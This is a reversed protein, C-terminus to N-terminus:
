KPIKSLMRIRSPHRAFGPIDGSMMLYRKADDLQRESIALEAKSMLRAFRASDHALDEGSIPPAHIPTLRHQTSLECIRQIEPIEQSVAIQHAKELSELSEGSRGDLNLLCARYLWPRYEGLDFHTVQELRDIFSRSFVGTSSHSLLAANFNAEPHLPDVALAEDLLRNAASIDGLDFRSVARNNLSDASILELDPKSAPCPEEFVEEYYQCIREAIQGFDCIRTDPAYCLCEGLLAALSEPITPIRYAKGGEDLFQRLVAGCAAGSEWTVGGTFMSLM